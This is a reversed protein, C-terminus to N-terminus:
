EHVALGKSTSMSCLVLCHLSQPIHTIWHLPLCCYFLASPTQILDVPPLKFHQVKCTASRHSIKEKSSIMVQLQYKLLQVICWDSKKTQSWNEDSTKFHCLLNKEHQRYKAWDHQPRTARLKGSIGQWDFLTELVPIDKKKCKSKLFLFKRYQQFIVAIVAWTLKETMRRIITCDLCINFYINWSQVKLSIQVAGGLRANKKVM